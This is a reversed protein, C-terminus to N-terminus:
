ALEGPRAEAPRESGGGQGEGASAPSPVSEETEVRNM